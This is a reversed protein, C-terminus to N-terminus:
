KKRKKQFKYPDIDFQKKAKIDWNLKRIIWDEFRGCMKEIWLFLLWCVYGVGAVLLLPSCLILRIWLLSLDLVKYRRLKTTIMLM